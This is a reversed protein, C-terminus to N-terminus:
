RAEGATAPTPDRTAPPAETAATRAAESRRRVEDLTASGVPEHGYWAAEFAATVAAVDAAAAPRRTRVEALYEGTTRGPAEDVVGAGALGAILARYRCRLAERRRGAREHEAAEAEWDAPDRGIGDGSVAAVAPDRQVRRAFRVALVAAALAVGLILLSGILSAQDTGGVAELLRGFQEALWARARAALSPAAEAYERRSLVETVARRVEEADAAPRPLDVALSVM